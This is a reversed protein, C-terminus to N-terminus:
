HSPLTRQFSAWTPPPHWAPHLSSPCRSGLGSSGLGCPARRHRGGPCETSDTAQGGDALVPGPRERGGWACPSPGPEPHVGGSPTSPLPMAPPRTHVRSEALQQGPVSGTRAPNRRLGSIGENGSFCCRHHPHSSSPLSFVSLTLGPVSRGRARRGGATLVPGETTLAATPTPPGPHAGVGRWPPSRGVKLGVSLLGRRMGLPVPRPVPARPSARRQPGREAPLKLAAAM